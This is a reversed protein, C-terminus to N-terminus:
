KGREKNKKNCNNKESIKHYLSAIIAGTRTLDADAQILKKQNMISLQTKTVLLLNDLKVNLRNGDAFILVHGKPIPGNEEEWIITHKSKWIGPDGIKVYIYGEGSIRESGIPMYNHPKNGKKFGSPGVKHLGKVGKNPSVHGKKFRGDMGSRLKKNKKYARIKDATMDLNFHKNFMEALEKNSRGEVNDKIFQREADTYKHLV